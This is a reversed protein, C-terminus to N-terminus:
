RGAVMLILATFKSALQILVKQV